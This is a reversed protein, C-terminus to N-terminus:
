VLSHSVPNILSSSFSYFSLPFYFLFSIGMMDKQSQMAFKVVAAEHIGSAIKWISYTSSSSLPM